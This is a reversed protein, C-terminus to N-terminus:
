AYIEEWNTRFYELPLNHRRAFHHVRQHASAHRFYQLNELSNDKRNENVHHVVEKRKLKRGLVQEVVARHERKNKGSVSVMKYGEAEWGNGNGANHPKNGPSFWGKNKKIINYKLGKPRKRFRYFCPKSCYKNQKKGLHKQCPCKM